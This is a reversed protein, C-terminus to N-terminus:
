NNQSIKHIFENISELVEKDNTYLGFEINELISSKTLNMSSVLCENRDIVLIKAHLNENIIM